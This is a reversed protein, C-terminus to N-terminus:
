LGKQASKIKEIAKKASDNVMNDDEERLLTILPRMARLAGIKGITYSAWCRVRPDEDKLTEILPEVADDGIKALAGSVMKRVYWDDDDRLTAILPKITRVDGIQGLVAAVVWRNHFNKDRLLNILNDILYNYEKNVLSLDGLEKIENIRESIEDFEKKELRFFIYNFIQLQKERKTKKSIVDGVNSKILKSLIKEIDSENKYQPIIFGGLDPPLNTNSNRLICCKKGFLHILGLEYMVNPKYGSIDTVAYGSKQIKKCVNCLLDEYDAETEALIPKLNNHILIKCIINEYKKYEPSYPINLFFQFPDFDNKIEEQRICSKANKPCYRMIEFQSLMSKDNEDM